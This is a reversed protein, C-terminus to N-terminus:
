PCETMHPFARSFASLYVRRPGASALTEAAAGATAGTTLVDDVLVICAGQLRPRADERVSFARRVNALRQSPHLSVQTADGPRRILADLFPQGTAYAIVEALLQAQNYGRIRARTRTTPVPVLLFPRSVGPHLGLMAMRAGMVEALGSWGDYKLAHVLSDAPPKLISCARAGSLAPPWRGCESCTAEARVGTGLPYDCRACRPYPPERLRVACRACVLVPEREPPVRMGCGLCARPLLLDLLDRGLAASIM